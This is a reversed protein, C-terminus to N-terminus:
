NFSLSNYFREWNKLSKGQAGQPMTVSLMYTGGPVRIFLGRTAITGDASLTGTSLFAPYGKFNVVQEPRANEMEHDYTEHMAADQGSREFVAMFTSGFQDNGRLVFAPADGNVKTADFIEGPLDVVFGGDTSRARRWGDALSKEGRNVYKGTALRAIRDQIAPM